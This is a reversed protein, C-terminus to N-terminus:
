STNVVSTQSQILCTLGLDKPDSALFRVLNDHKIALQINRPLCHTPRGGILMWRQVAPFAVIRLPAPLWSGVPWEAIDGIMELENRASKHRKYMETNRSTHTAEKSARRYSFM